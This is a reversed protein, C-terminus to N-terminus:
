NVVNTWVHGQDTFYRAETDIDIVYAVPFGCIGNTEALEGSSTVVLRPGLRL